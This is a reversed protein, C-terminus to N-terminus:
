CYFVGNSGNRPKWRVLFESTRYVCGRRWLFLSTLESQGNIVFHRVTIFNYPGLESMLGADFIGSWVRLRNRNSSKWNYAFFLVEFVYSLDKSNRFKLGQIVGNFHQHKYVWVSRRRPLVDLMVWSSFLSSMMFFSVLWTHRHYYTFKHLFLSLLSLSLSFNHNSSGNM